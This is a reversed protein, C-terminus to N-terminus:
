VMWFVPLAGSLMLLTCIVPTFALSKETLMGGAETIAPPLEDVKLM